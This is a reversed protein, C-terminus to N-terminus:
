RTLKYTVILEIGNEAAIDEASPHMWFGFMFPFLPKDTVDALKVLDKMFKRVEARKIRNKAEGVVIIPVGDREGESYLNIELTDNNVELFERRFEVGSIGYIKEFYSPLVAHGMDELGLGLTESLAGVQGRLQVVGESLNRIAEETRTQAQVLEGIREETRQQAQALQEVREETRQQAQALQEVREETRVQAQALQNVREETRIQAHALDDVISKLEEFELKTALQRSFIGNQFATLAYILKDTQKETFEPQLVQRIEPMDIDVM